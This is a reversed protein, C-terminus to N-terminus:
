VALAAIHLTSSEPAAAGAPVPRGEDDVCELLTFGAESLQREAADRDIFYQASRFMHGVDNVVAYGPTDLEFRRMRTRNFLRVPLCKLDYMLHERRLQWARELFPAKGRNHTSMIVLGDPALVRRMERLAQRRQSDDFVDIVNDIAVVAGFHGDAYRSLDLMDGVEFHATPHRRRAAEVMAPAIDLGHVEAAIAVLHGTVRGPGPGLELVRGALRARHRELLAAEAARLETGM